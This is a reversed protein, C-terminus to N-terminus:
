RDPMKSVFPPATGLSHAELRVVREQLDSIKEELRDLYAYLRDRDKKADQYVTWLGYLLIATAPATKVFEALLQEM